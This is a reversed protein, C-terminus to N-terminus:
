FVNRVMTDAYKTSPRHVRVLQSPSLASISCTRLIRWSHQNRESEATATFGATCVASDFQNVLQLIDRMGTFSLGLRECYIKRGGGGTSLNAWNMFVAALMVHDSNGVEEFIKAREALINRQKAQEITEEGNSKGGTRPTDVRLFPSRGSSMIAAMALAATRCGLISGM